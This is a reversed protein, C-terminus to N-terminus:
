VATRHQSFHFNVSVIDSTRLMVNPQNCIQTVRACVCVCVPRCNGNLVRNFYNLTFKQSFVGTVLTCVLEEDSIKRTKRYSMNTLQLQTTVRHCYLCLLGQLPGSTELFNLNGSKM